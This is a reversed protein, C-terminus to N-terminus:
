NESSTKLPISVMGAEKTGAGCAAPRPFYQYCGIVVKVFHPKPSVRVKNMNDTKYNRM